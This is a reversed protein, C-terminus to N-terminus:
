NKDAHYFDKIQNMENIMKQTEDQQRHLFNVVWCNVCPRIDALFSPGTLRDVAEKRESDTLLRTQVIDDTTIGLTKEAGPSIDFERKTWEAPGYDVRMLAISKGTKPSYFLRWPNNIGYAKPEGRSAYYPANEDLYGSLKYEPHLRAIEAATTDDVFFTRLPTGAIEKLWPIVGITEWRSPMYALGNLRDGSDKPGGFISMKGSDNSPRAM